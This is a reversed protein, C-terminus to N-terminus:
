QHWDQTSLHFTPRELTFHKGGPFNLYKSKTGTQSSFLLWFIEKHLVLTMAGHSTCYCKNSQKNMADSIKWHFTKFPSTKPQNQLSSCPQVYKEPIGERGRKRQWTVHCVSDHRSGQHVQGSKMQVHVHTLICEHLTYHCSSSFSLCFRTWVLCYWFPAPLLAFVWFDSYQLHSPSIRGLYFLSRIAAYRVKLSSCMKLQTTLSKRSYLLYYLSQGVHVISMEKVESM